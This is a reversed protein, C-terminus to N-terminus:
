TGLLKRKVAAFEEETLLGKERLAAAERLAAVLRGTETEVQPEGPASPGAAAAAPVFEPPPPECPVLKPPAALSPNHVVFQAVFEDTLAPDAAFIMERADRTRLLVTAGWKGQLAEVAVVSGHFHARPPKKGSVTLCLLREPTLAWLMWGVREGRGRLFRGMIENPALSRQLLAEEAPSLPATVMRTAGSFLVEFSEFM